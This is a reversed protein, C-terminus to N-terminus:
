FPEPAELVSDLLGPFRVDVDPRRLSICRQTGDLRVRIIGAERLVKFHHSLTPKPMPIGCDGCCQEGNRALTRVIRLRVPDSLARLAISVPIDTLRPHDVQRKVAKLIRRATRGSVHREAM